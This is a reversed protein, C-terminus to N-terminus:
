IVGPSRSRKGKANIIPVGIVGGMFFTRVLKPSEVGKQKSDPALVPCVSPRVSPRATGM